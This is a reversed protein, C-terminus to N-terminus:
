NPSKSTQGRIVLNCIAFRWNGFISKWDSGGGVYLSFVLLSDTLFDIFLNHITMSSPRNAPAYAKASVCSVATNRVRISGSLSTGGMAAAPLLAFAVM